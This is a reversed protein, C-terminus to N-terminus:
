RTEIYKAVSWIVFGVLSYFMMVGGAVMLWSGVQEILNM